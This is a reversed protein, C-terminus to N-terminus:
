DKSELGLFLRLEPTSRTVVVDFPMVKGEHLFCNRPLADFALLDYAFNYYIEHEIPGRLRQWGSKVFYSEIERPTAPAGLYRPQSIAMSLAGCKWHLIAELEVDDGFVENAAFWRELYEVPNANIFELSVTPTIRHNESGPLIRGIQVLGPKLGFGPPITIKAVRGIEPAFDVVHESGVFLDTDSARFESWSEDLHKLIGLEGAIACACEALIAASPGIRNGSDQSDDPCLERLGDLFRRIRSGQFGSESFAGVPNRAAKKSNQPGNAGSSDM